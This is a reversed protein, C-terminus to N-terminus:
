DCPRRRPRRPRSGGTRGIRPRAVPLEAGDAALLCEVVGSDAELVEVQDEHRVDAGLHGLAVVDEFPEAPGPERDDVDLRGARRASSATADTRLQDLGACGLHHQADADLLRRPPEDRGGPEFRPLDLGAEADAWRSRGAPGPAGRASRRSPRPGRRRTLTLFWAVRDCLGFAIYRLSTCGPVPPRRALGTHGGSVQEHQARGFSPAAAATSILVALAAHAGPEIERNPQPRDRHDRPLGVVPEHRSRRELGPTRVPRVARAAAARRHVPRCRRRRRRRSRTGPCRRRSRAARRGRGRATCAGPLLRAQQAGARRREPACIGTFGDPPSSEFPSGSPAEPRPWSWSSTVCSRPRAPGRCTSPGGDTEPVHHTRTM